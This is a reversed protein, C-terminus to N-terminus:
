SGAGAEIASNNTRTPGFLSSMASWCKMLPFDARLFAIVVLKSAPIEDLIHWGGRFDQLKFGVPHGESSLAPATFALMSTLLVSFWETTAMTPGAQISMLEASYVGDNEHGGQDDLQHHTSSRRLFGREINSETCTM